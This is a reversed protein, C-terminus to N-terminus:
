ASKATSASLESTKAGRREVSRTVYFARNSEKASQKGAPTQIWARKRERQAVRQAPDAAWKARRRENIIDRKLQYNERVAAEKCEKCDNRHGDAYEKEPYFGRLSKEVGCAVCVKRQHASM